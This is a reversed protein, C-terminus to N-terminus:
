LGKRFYLAGDMAYPNQPQYLRFGTRILSNASKLNWPSTYTVLFKFGERRAHKERVRILRQQLGQGRYAKIVGVRCLFGTEHGVNKLGAFAVCTEGDYAIWWEAGKKPYPNDAPFSLRDLWELDEQSKQNLTVKRIEM